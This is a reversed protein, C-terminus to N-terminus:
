TERTVGAIRWASTTTQTDIIIKKKCHMKIKFRTTISLNMLIPIIQYLNM